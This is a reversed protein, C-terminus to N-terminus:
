EGGGDRVTFRLTDKFRGSFTWTYGTPRPTHRPRRGFLRAIFRIM